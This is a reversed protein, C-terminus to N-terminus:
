KYTICLIILVSIFSLISITLSISTILGFIKLKNAYNSQFIKAIRKKSLGFATKYVDKVYDMGFEFDKKAWEGLRHYHNRLDNIILIKGENNLQDFVSLIQSVDEGFDNKIRRIIEKVDTENNLDESDISIVEKDSFAGQLYFELGQYTIQYYYFALRYIIGTIISIALLTLVTQVVSDSFSQNFDTLNSIIISLGGISFGVIWIMMKDLNSFNYRQNEKIKDLNEFFTEKITTFPRKM